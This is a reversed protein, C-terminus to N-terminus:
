LNKKNQLDLLSGYKKSKKEKLKGRDEENDIHGKVRKQARSLLISQDINMRKTDNVMPVQKLNNNWEEKQRKEEGYRWSAEFRNREMKVRSALKVSLKSGYLSFDHLREIAREAEAMSSMRVFGFRKGGRSLKRAIYADVVEGHRAFSFWLGKWHLTKPINEVFLSIVQEEGKHQKSQEGRYKSM